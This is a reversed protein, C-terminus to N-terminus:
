RPFAIEQVAVEVEAPQGMVEGRALVRVALRSGPTVPVTAGAGELSCGPRHPATLAPTAQEARAPSWRGALELAAARAWAAQETTRTYIELAVRARQCAHESTLEGGPLSGDFSLGAHDLAGHDRPVEVDLVFADCARLAYGGGSSRAAALRRSQEGGGLSRTESAAVRLCPDDAARAPSPAALLAGLIATCAGLAAAPRSRPIAPTRM